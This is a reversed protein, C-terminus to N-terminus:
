VLFIVPPRLLWFDIEFHPVLIEDPFPHCRTGPGDFVGLVSFEIEIGRAM